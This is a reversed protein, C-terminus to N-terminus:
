AADGAARWNLTTRRAFVQRSGARSSRRVALAVYGALVGILLYALGAGILQGVVASVAALVWVGAQEGYPGPSTSPDTLMFLALFVAGQVFPAGFMEAVAAPDALSVLTFLGFYTGTFALVLPFKNIRDVVLAGGALRLILFPWALDGGDGGSTASPSAM